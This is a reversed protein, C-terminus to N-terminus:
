STAREFRSPLLTHIGRYVNGTLTKPLTPGKDWLCPPTMCWNPTQSPQSRLIINNNNNELCPALKVRLDKILGCVKIVRSDFCVCM